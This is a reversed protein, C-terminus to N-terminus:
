TAASTTGRRIPRPGGTPLMHRRKSNIHGIADYSYTDNYGAIGIKRLHAVYSKLGMSKPLAYEVWDKGYESTLMEFTAWNYAFFKDPTMPLADDLYGFSVKYKRKFKKIQHREEQTIRTYRGNRNDEDWVYIIRSNKVENRIDDTVLDRCDGFIDMNIDVDNKVLVIKVDRVAGFVYEPYPYIKLVYQGAPLDPITFPISAHLKWKKTIVTSDSDVLIIDFFNELHTLYDTQEYHITILGHINFREDDTSNPRGFCSFFSIVLFIVIFLTKLKM